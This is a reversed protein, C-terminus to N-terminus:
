NIEFIFYDFEAFDKELVKGEVDRNVCFLGVKSGTWIDEKPVFEIGFKFFETGDFSYLFESNACKRMRLKLYIENQNIKESVTIKEYVKNGSVEGLIQILYNGDERKEIGIASYKYGSVILGSFTGKTNFNVKMKTVVEFEEAPIKQLLLNPMYFISKEQQLSSKCVAFLKLVSKKNDIIYWEDKPNAHWQWALSLEEKDFHDSCEIYFHCSEEETSPKRYELVPEGIGDQNQDVGIICWDDEFWTMPQLHVIRGYPGKQQFHVFWHEGKETEVWAGQHPGNISTNGQHMVIKEEYPGYIDKSRLVTQWGNKVGGAPAFIYYYGNRKYLKPGEITPQTVSGDFIIRGEDLVSLGDESLRSICLKSNFGVRSKAFANVLYAKGDDDWFPCPDIWGKARKVLVIDSWKGFPDDTYCCFIGDDPMSFYIYFRGNHYRIAPAWIGKGIQPTDYEPSPLKKVAYNVLRWHVLDKSHLIPLGPVCNFSSAVLFYDNGVRIVDPDSYDAHIIPNKYKEIEM